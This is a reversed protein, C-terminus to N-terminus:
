DDRAGIVNALWHGMCNKNALRIILETDIKMM